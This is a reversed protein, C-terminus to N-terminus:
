LLGGNSGIRLCEAGDYGIEKLDMKIDDEYKRRPEGLPRNDETEVVYIKHITRMDGSTIRAACM